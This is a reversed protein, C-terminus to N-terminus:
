PGTIATKPSGRTKKPPLGSASASVSARSINASTAHRQTAAVSHSSRHGRIGTRAACSAIAQGSVANVQATAPGSRAM